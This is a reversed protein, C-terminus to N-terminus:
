RLCPTTYINGIIECNYKTINAKTVNLLRSEWKRINFVFDCYNDRYVVECVHGKFNVIDGEYLEVGKIDLLGTFQMLPLEDSNFSFLEVYTTDQYDYLMGEGIWCDNTWARFKLARIIM